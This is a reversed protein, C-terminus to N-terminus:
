PIKSAPRLNIDVCPIAIRATDGLVAKQQQSPLSLEISALWELFARREPRSAAVEGVQNSLHPQRYILAVEFPCGMSRTDFNAQLSDRNKAMSLFQRLDLPRFGFPADGALRFQFVVVSEVAQVGLCPMRLKQAWAEVAQGLVRMDRGAFYTRVKPAQDVATFQLSALVNGQIDERRAAIPYTPTKSGDNAVVCGLLERRAPDAEDMPRSWAIQRQDPLFVYTQSLRLPIQNAEICPVRFRKVYERVAAVLEPDAKGDLIKVEPALTAGTFILEVKVEGGEGRKWPAFPYEPEGREAAAPTMCAVASSPALQVDLAQALAGAPLAAAALVWALLHVLRM